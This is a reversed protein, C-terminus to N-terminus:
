RLEEEDPKQEVHDIVLVPVPRKESVLKLGMQREVAEFLSVAGSPDPATAGDPGAAGKEGGGNQLQGATSFSLTFDGAERFAQRIWFKLNSQIYGSAITKLQEGFRAMTVNQCTM